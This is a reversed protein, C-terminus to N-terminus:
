AMLSLPDDSPIHTNWKNTQIVPRPEQMIICSNRRDDKLGSCKVWESGGGQSTEKTM